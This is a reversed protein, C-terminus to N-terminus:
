NPTPQSVREVIFADRQVTERELKMGLQEQVATFISASGTDPTIGTQRARPLTIYFDFTGTLGTRDIVEEELAMQIASALMRLPQAGAAVVGDSGSLGCPVPADPRLLRESVRAQVVKICERESRRIGPGLKKDEHALTLAYVTATGSPDTRWELGFREELLARLMALTETRSAPGGVKAEIDFFQTRAWSPEGIIRDSPRVDYAISILWELPLRARFGGGQIFTYSYTGSEAPKISAVEFAPSTQQPQARLGAGCVILLIAVARIM